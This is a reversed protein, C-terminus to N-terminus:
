VDILNLHNLCFESIFFVQCVTPPVIFYPSQAALVVESDVVELVVESDVESIYFMVNRVLAANMSSSSVATVNSVDDCESEISQEAM